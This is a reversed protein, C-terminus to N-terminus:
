SNTEFVGDVPQESTQRLLLSLDCLVFLAKLRGPGFAPKRLIERVFTCSVFAGEDVRRSSSPFPVGAPAYAARLSAKSRNARRTPTHPFRLDSEVLGCPVVSALFMRIWKTGDAERM